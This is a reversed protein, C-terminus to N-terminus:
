LEIILDSDDSKFWIIIIYRSDYNLMRALLRTKWIENMFKCSLSLFSVNFNM